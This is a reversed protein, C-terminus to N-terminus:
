RRRGNGRNVQAGTKGLFFSARSIDVNDLAYVGETVEVGPEKRQRLALAHGQSFPMRSYGKKVSAEVCERLFNTFWTASVQGVDMAVLFQPFDSITGIRKISQALGKAAGRPPAGHREFAEDRLQTLPKRPNGVATKRFLNLFMLLRYSTKSAEFTKQLRYHSVASPELYALEPMNAGKSDLMWVVNRTITEKIISKIMGDSMEVDSVLAAVLLTGLNPCETKSSKGQGFGRLLANASQVIAPQTTAMCLLLHFCHFYSEIAKESARNMTGTSMEEYPYYPSRTTAESTQTNLKVVIDNMFHYIVEVPPVAGLNAASSISSLSM